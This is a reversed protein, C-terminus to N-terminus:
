RPRRASEYIDCACFRSGAMEVCERDNDHSARAHGCTCPADGGTTDVPGDLAAFIATRTHEINRFCPLCTAGDFHHDCIWGGAVYQDWREALDRVGALRAALIAPFQRSVAFALRDVERDGHPRDLNDSVVKRLIAMESETLHENM